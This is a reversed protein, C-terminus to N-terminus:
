KLTYKIIYKTKEKDMDITFSYLRYIYDIYNKDKLYEEFLQKPTKNEDIDKVPVEITISEPLLIFQSTSYGKWEPIGRGEFVSKYYTAIDNLTMIDYGSCWQATEPAENIHRVCTFIYNPDTEIHPQIWGFYRNMRIDYGSNYLSYEGTSKLESTLAGSLYFANNFDISFGGKGIELLDVNDKLMNWAYFKTDGIKYICSFNMMSSDITKGFKKIIYDSLYTGEYVTKKIADLETEYIYAPNIVIWDISKIKDEKTYDNFNFLLVNKPKDNIGPNANNVLSISFTCNDALVYGQAEIWEEFKGMNFNCGNCMCKGNNIPYRRIDANYYMKYIDTEVCKKVDEGGVGNLNQCRYPLCNMWGLNHAQYSVEDCYMDINYNLEPTISADAELGPGIGDFGPYANFIYDSNGISWSNICPQIHEVTEHKIDTVDPDHLYGLVNGPLNYTNFDLDGKTFPKNNNDAYEVDIRLTQYDTVSCLTRNPIIDDLNFYWCLNLIWPCIINYREYEACIYRNFESYTMGHALCRSLLDSKVEIMDGSVTSLGRVVSYDATPDANIIHPDKVAGDQTKGNMEYLSRELYSKLQSGSLNIYKTYIKTGDPKSVIFKVYTPLETENNIFIPTFVTLEKGNKQLSVRKLGYQADGPTPNFFKDDDVMVKFDGEETVKSDLHPSYFGSQYKKHFQVLDRGYTSFKLNVGYPYIPTASSVPNLSCHYVEDNKLYCGIKVNGTLAVNTRYLQYAM